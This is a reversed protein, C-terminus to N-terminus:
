IIQAGSLFVDTRPLPRDTRQPVIQKHKSLSELEFFKVVHLKELRATAVGSAM